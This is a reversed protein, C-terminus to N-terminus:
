EDADAVVMATVTEAHCITAPRLNLRTKTIRYDRTRVRSSMMIVDDYTTNEDFLINENCWQLWPSQICDIWSPALRVDLCKLGGKQQPNEEDLLRKPIKLDDDIAQSSVNTM